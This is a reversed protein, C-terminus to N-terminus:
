KNKNIMEKCLTMGLGTGKENNTGYTTITNTDAFIKKQIEKNM